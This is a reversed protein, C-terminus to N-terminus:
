EALLKEVKEELKGRANLDVLNGKKDVLWMAPISNIGFEQGYKNKWFQGDFFQPWPMNKEKVFNVLKEKADERDFSIGVIEFGKPHLKEYAKVVNPIEAICPGCWTAWFDVLIVKGNMKAMDVERGDVATFKLALPKGLQDLKKLLGQARMKASESSSKALVEEALERAKKGEAYNAAQALMEYIQAEGPFDKLLARAAKELVVSYEAATKASSMGADTMAQKQAARFKQEEPSLQRTKPSQLTAAPKRDGAKDDAGVLGFPVGALAALLIFLGTQKLPIIKM